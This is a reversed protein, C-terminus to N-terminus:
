ATNCTEINDNTKYLKKVFEELNAVVNESLSINGLTSLLHSSELYTKWAIKKSIGALYSTVNCGTIAYLALINKRLQDEMNLAITDIPIFKQKTSPVDVFCFNMGIRM